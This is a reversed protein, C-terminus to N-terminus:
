ASEEIRKLLNKLAVQPIYKNAEKLTSTKISNWMTVNYYAEELQRELAHGDALSYIKGNIGEFVIEKNYKWDSALVPLGAAMADILTGAFGEGEYFTPFLLLFYNKLVDTSKNYPIMGRYCIYDPFKSQLEEFWVKQSSEIQGFIDLKFLTHGYKKNIRNVAVVADEIGKERMVRSFTCLKYPERRNYVLEEESLINLEKCNPTVYVNHFGKLELLNKLTETEVYIGNFKKLIYTLLKKKELFESLWGGIVVYHLKRHLYTNMLLLIPAYIKLGNEAPMIIINKHNNLATKCQFPVEKLIRLGGHTDIIDVESEGFVHCLENTVIKTKVTQGNLLNSEKAFHGIVCINRIKKSM